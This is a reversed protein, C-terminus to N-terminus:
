GDRPDDIAGALMERIDHLQLKLEEADTLPKGTSIAEVLELQTDVIAILIEELSVGDEDEDAM